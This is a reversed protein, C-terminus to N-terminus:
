DTPWLARETSSILNELSFHQLIRERARRGLEARDSELCRALAEALAEPDKPPVVFGTDGVVLGSDGVDTVVCPLGSAMAEGVVNPFGEGYSSSVAVDLANYVAEMDHRAGAWRLLPALCLERATGELQERYVAPGGGVCVFRVNSRQQSLLAAAKLFNTHDKMPDLRGPLGVLLEDSGVGWESRVKERAAPDPRFRETDIGNPIVVMKHQPYGYRAAFEEGAKSNVIITDAFRSLRRAAGYTIRAMWDYQSLDMNSSRVGWVTRLRPFVPKITVALVNPVELYSYLLGPRKDRILQILRIIFGFVDWRGSKNLPYVPVGERRLEPELPGGGYFVAVAVKRGRRHLGIALEVLQREAGGYNLARILFLLEM